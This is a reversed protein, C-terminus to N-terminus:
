VSNPATGSHSAVASFQQAFTIFDLEPLPKSYYYGQAMDAGYQRLFDLQEVTEAGEGVVELNLSNAITIIAKCLEADNPDNMVDMVFSRDIKLGDFPFRKLYSLSSYGTGFDDLSLRVGANKIERLWTSIQDTNELLLSETVELELLAPSLQSKTLAAHLEDICRGNRFQRPSINVAVRLGTLGSAQWKKATECARSLVWQGIDEILGTDEAVPIFDIPSVWGLKQNKWRLLAEAGVIAGNALNIQPQFYLALENREIAYRLEAELEMRRRALENMERTFFSFTNRGRSKSRYMATDGNALLAHPDSGDDPFGAIGISATLHFEREGVTIPRALFSLIKRAVIEAASVANLECLVVLFEDGGLRAVTDVERVCQTLRKAVEVLVQDGVIHGLTDNVNKFFDIDIFLVAMAQQHRRSLKIAQQIREFGLQRNPLQTLADYNAQHHLKAEVRERESVDNVLAAVCAINGKEDTLLTNHWETTINRGDKAVCELKCHSSAQSVIKEQFDRLVEDRNDKHFLVSISQGAVSSYDYGFVREAAPNWHLINMATDFEVVALPTKQIHTELRLQSDRLSENAAKLNFEDNKRQTIDAGVHVVGASTNKIDVPTLTFERWEGRSGIPTDYCFTEHGRCIHNCLVCDSRTVRQDHFIDHVNKGYLAEASLGSERRAAYNSKRITGNRDVVVISLPVADYTSSGVALLKYPEGLSTRVVVLFVLWFSIFKLIHGVVVTQDYVSVYLTFLLETVITVIIAVAIMNRLQQDIIDRRATVFVLAFSLLGIVVYESVVKFRTLGEGEVYTIPFAGYFVFGVVIFTVLGFIAFVNIRKFTKHIVLVSSALVVAELVRAVVWLQTSLLAGGQSFIGMGKYSFAHLLDVVGVWFYGVGLFLIFHNRTFSHTQWAVVCMMMAVFVAFLEALSHFLLFNHFSSVALAAAIMGPIFWNILHLRWHRGAVDIEYGIKLAKDM